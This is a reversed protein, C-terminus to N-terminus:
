DGEQGAEGLEAIVLSRGRDTLEWIDYPTLNCGGSLPCGDCATRGCSEAVNKVYGKRELERALQRVYPVSVRNAAAFSQYSGASGSRLAELFTTDITM